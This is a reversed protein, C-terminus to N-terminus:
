LTCIIFLIFFYTINVNRSIFNILRQQLTCYNFAIIIHLYNRRESTAFNLYGFLHVHEKGQIHSIHDTKDEQLLDEIVITTVTIIVTTVLVAIITTPVTQETITIINWLQHHHELALDQNQNLGLRRIPVVVVVHNASVFYFLVHSLQRSFM